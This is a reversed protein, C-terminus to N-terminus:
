YATWWAENEHNTSKHIEISEGIKPVVYQINASKAATIFREVPETWAHQSLRFAGWHIPMIQKAKLDLGAQVTQEPFMHINSWKENYQGCEMMAFDFPGYKEGIEKFHDGYGGDGSFYINDMKTKIIWSCWLTSNSTSLTRGSFHQSPVSRFVIGDHQAEDWWDLEVIREKEVGWKELHVGVGLPVYFMNVKDKLKRISGYDLHDYHDHSIIVADIQPLKEISIPLSTSFRSSGLWSFPSPVDGFMPDVLINKRDTQLLFTSHGFWILRTSDKYNAIDTSDQKVFSLTNNPKTEERPSILEGIGERFDKFNFKMHSEFIIKNRFEGNEFNPSDVYLEKQNEPIDGGFKPNCSVAIVILGTILTFIGLIVMRKRKRNKSFYSKM